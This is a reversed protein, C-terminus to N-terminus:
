PLSLFMECNLQSICIFVNLNFGLIGMTVLVYSNILYFILKHGKAILGLRFFISAKLMVLPSSTRSLSGVKGM